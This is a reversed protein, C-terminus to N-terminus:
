FHIAKSFEFKENKFHLALITEDKKGQNEISLADGSWKKAKKSLFNFFGKKILGKLDQNASVAEECCAEKQAEAVIAQDAHVQKTVIQETVPLTSTPQIAKEITNLSEKLAIHEQIEKKNDGMPSENPQAPEKNIVVDGAAANWEVPNKSNLKEATESVTSGISAQQTVLGNQLIDKSFATSRSATHKKLDTKLNTEQSLLDRNSQILAQHNNQMTEAVNLKSHNQNPKQSATLLDVDTNSRNFLFVGCVILLVLSAAVAMWQFRFNFNMKVPQSKIDELELKSLIKDFLEPDPEAVDFRHKAQQIYKKLPDSM